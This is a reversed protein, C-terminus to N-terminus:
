YTKGKTDYRWLVSDRREAVLLRESHHLRLEAHGELVHILEDLRLWDRRGRDALYTNLRKPWLFERAKTSQCHTRAPASLILLARPDM